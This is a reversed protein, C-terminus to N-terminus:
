YASFYVNDTSTYPSGFDHYYDTRFAKVNYDRDGSAVRRAVAYSTDSPTADYLCYAVNFTNYNFVVNEIGGQEDALNLITSAVLWQCYESCNGAEQYTTRAILDIEYDSYGGSSYTKEQKEEKEPTEDTETKTEVQPETEEVKEEKIEEKEPVTETKEPKTEKKTKTAKAKVKVEQKNQSHTIEIISPAITGGYRPAIVQSAIVVNRKTLFNNAQSVVKASVGPKKDIPEITNKSLTAVASEETDVVSVVANATETNPNSVQANSIFAIFGLSFITLFTLSSIIIKKTQNM